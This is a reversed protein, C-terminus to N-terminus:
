IRPQQSTGHNALTNLAPCPGRSDSPTPPLYAHLSWDGSLDPSIVHRPSKMSSVWSDPHVLLSSMGQIVSQVSGITSISTSTGPRCTPPGSSVRSSQSLPMPLSCMSASCSASPIPGTCRTPIPSTSHPDVIHIMDNILWPLSADLSQSSVNYHCKSIPILEVHGESLHDGRSSHEYRTDYRPSGFAIRRPPNTAQRFDAAERFGTGRM